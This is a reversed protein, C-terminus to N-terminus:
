AADYRTLLSALATHRAYAAAFADVDLAAAAAEMANRLGSLEHGLDRRRAARQQAAEVAVKRPEAAAEAAAKREENTPQHRMIGAVRERAPAAWLRDFEERRATEKDERAERAAAQQRWAQRMGEIGQALTM